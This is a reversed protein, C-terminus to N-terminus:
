LFDVGEFGPKEEPEPLVELRISAADGLETDRRVFVKGSYTVFGVRNLRYVGPTVEPPVRSEVDAESRTVGKSAAWQEAALTPKGSM